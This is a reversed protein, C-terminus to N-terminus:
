KDNRNKWKAYAPLHIAELDDLGKEVLLSIYENRNRNTFSVLRNLRKLNVETLYCYSRRSLPLPKDEAKLKKVSSSEISSVILERMLAARGVRKHSALIDLSKLTEETVQISIFKYM